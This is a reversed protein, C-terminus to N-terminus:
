SVINHKMGFGGVQTTSENVSPNSSLNNMKENGLIGESKHNFSRLMDNNDLHNSHSYVMYKNSQDGKKNRFHIQGSQTQKSGKNAM